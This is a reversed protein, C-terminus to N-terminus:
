AGISRCTKGAPFDLRIQEDGSQWLAFVSPEAANKELSDADHEFPRTFRYLQLNKFWM